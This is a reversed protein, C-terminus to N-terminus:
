RDSNIVIDDEIRLIKNCNEINEVRKQSLNQFKNLM